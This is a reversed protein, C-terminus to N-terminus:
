HDCLDACVIIKFPSKDISLLGYSKDYWKNLYNYKHIEVRLFYGLFISFALPMSHDM